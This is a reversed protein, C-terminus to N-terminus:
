PPPPAPIGFTGQKGTDAARIEANTAGGPATGFNTRGATCFNAAAQLIVARRPDGSGASKESRLDGPAGSCGTQARSLCSGLRISRRPCKKSTEVGFVPPDVNM